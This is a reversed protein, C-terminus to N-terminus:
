AERVDFPCTVQVHNWKATKDQAADEIVELGSPAFFYGAGVTVRSFASRLTDAKAEIAALGGRPVDFVDLILAGSVRNGTVGTGGTEMVGNGWRITARAWMGNPPTFREGQYSVPIGLALATIVADVAVRFADLNSAM